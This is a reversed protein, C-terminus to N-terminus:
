RCLTQDVIRTVAEMDFPKDICRHVGARMAEARLEPTSFATM